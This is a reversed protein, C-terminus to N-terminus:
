GEKDGVNAGKASPLGHAIATGHVTSQGHVGGPVGHWAPEGQRVPEHWIIAYANSPEIVSSVSPQTCTVFEPETDPVM